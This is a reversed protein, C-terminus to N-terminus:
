PAPAFAIVQGAACEESDVVSQPRWAKLDSARPRTEFVTVGTTQAPSPRWDPIRVLRWEGTASPTQLRSVDILAWVPTGDDRAFCAWLLAADYVNGDINSTAWSLITYEVPV